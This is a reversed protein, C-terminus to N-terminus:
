LLTKDQLMKQSSKDLYNELVIRLNDRIRIINSYVSNCNDPSLPDPNKLIMIM